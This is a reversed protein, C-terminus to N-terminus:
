CETGEPKSVIESTVRNVKRQYLIKLSARYLFGDVFDLFGRRRIM